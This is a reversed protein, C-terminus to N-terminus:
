REKAAEWVRDMEELTLQGGAARLAEEVRVFRRRFRACAGRLAEEANVELQRALNVCSFLLDGTEEAVRAPDGGARAEALEALEEAIKELVPEASGWDFGLGSAREQMRQARQLEPLARPLGDLVSEGAGPREARKVREWHRVVDRPHGAAADRFVHPHRRIMKEAAGAALERATFEGREEALRALFVILFLLDGLEERLARPDRAEIAEVAEYAEEVLHPKMTEESQARDWPCGPDGRLVAMIGVLRDFPHPDDPAPVPAPPTPRASDAM